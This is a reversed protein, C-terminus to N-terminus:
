NKLGGWILRMSTGAFAVSKEKVVESNSVILAVTYIAARILFILGLGARVAVLALPGYFKRCYTLYSSLTRELAKEGIWAKGAGEYHIIKISPTYDVRYGLMRVRKCYDVDEVYMFYSEDLGGLSEWLSRRTMLFAGSVWSVNEQPMDYLEKRNVERQFISPLFSIRKLGSWSLIIRLPTHEYGISLQQRGDGYFLRGGLVGLKEDAYFANCASEVDVLLCTDNNLLLLLDGCAYRVGLNNGGTFGINEQNAILKVEPFTSKVYESSGDTSANDVIIIEHPWTVNSSISNLCEKIFQIGNYNVIIISLLKPM